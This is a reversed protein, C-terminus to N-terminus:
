KANKEPEKPTQKVISKLKEDFAAESEDAGLEKAAKKFREIQEPTPKTIHKPL